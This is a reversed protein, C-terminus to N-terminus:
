QLEEKYMQPLEAVFNDYAEESSTGMPIVVPLGLKNKAVHTLSKQTFIARVDGERMKAEVAQKKQSKTVREIGPDLDMYLINAMFKKLVSRIGEDMDIEMTQYDLGKPNKFTEVKSHALVILHTGKSRQLELDSCLRDLYQPCDQRPGRYYSMFEDYEGDFREQCVHDFLVRQLGSGSDLVLTQDKCSRVCSVLHSWNEININTVFIDPVEGLEILDEMGTERISLCTLKKPFEAAFTTKGIGETGALLLGLGKM